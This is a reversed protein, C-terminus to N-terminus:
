CNEGGCISFTSSCQRQHTLALKTHLSIQQITRHATIAELARELFVEETLMQQLVVRSHERM